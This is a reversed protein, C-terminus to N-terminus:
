LLWKATFSNCGVHSIDQAELAGDINPLVGDTCVMGRRSARGCGVARSHRKAYYGTWACGLVANLTDIQLGVNRQSRASILLVWLNKRGAGRGAFLEVWMMRVSSYEVDCWSRIEGLDGM